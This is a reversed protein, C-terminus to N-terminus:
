AIRIRAGSADAAPLDRPVAPTKGGLTVRFPGPGRTALEAREEADGPERVELTFAGLVYRVRGDAAASPVLGLRQEYFARAPALAGVLLELGTVGGAGNAHTGPADWRVREADPTLWEILFPWPKRWPSGGPVVLRWALRRGDPRERAMDFPGSAGTGALAAAEEDLNGSALVFGVLGAGRGLMDLLEAGFPGSARAVAADEVALLELYDLGFRVIANCTGFSRHQGGAAVAFGLKAYAEMASAIDSVAVVAHDFRTIM